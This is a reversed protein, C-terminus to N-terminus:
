SIKGEQKVATELCRRVFVPLVEARYEKSARIDTTFDFGKGSELGAQKLLAPSPKQGTLIKEAVSCRLPKKSIANLAIRAERVKGGSQTLRVAVSIIAYDNKTKSFKHFETGSSKDLIPIRIESVIEGPKLHFKPTKEFWKDVPVSRSKKGDSLVIEADLALLAPPLDSWPFVAVINGGITVAHRLLTSGISGAAKRLLTGAPGSLLNSEYVDQVPTTAGIRFEKKDKRIFSLNLNKLDVLGTIGSDKAVGLYTGGALVVNKGGKSRLLTCAESVTKPFHVVSLKKLM